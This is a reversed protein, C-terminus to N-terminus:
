IAKRNRGEKKNALTIEKKIPVFIYFFFFGENPKKKVWIATFETEKTKLFDSVYLNFIETTLCLRRADCSEQM